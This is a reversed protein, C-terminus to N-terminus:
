DYVQYDIKDSKFIRMESVFARTLIHFSNKKFFVHIKRDFITLSFMKFFFCVYDATFVVFSRTLNFKRSFHILKHSTSYNEVDEYTLFHVFTSMNLSM